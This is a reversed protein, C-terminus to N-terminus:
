LAPALQSMVEMGVEQKDKFLRVRGVGIVHWSDGRWVLATGEDVGALVVGAPAFALTRKAREASWQSFHPLVSFGKVLGLGFTFAGGRPDVMPDGLVMAGASSAALVGGERVVKLVADYLPSDKLVAKLHLPSGGAVYVFRSGEIATRNADLFAEERKLVMVPRVSAGLRRFHETAVEVARMPREFAAATPLIAVERVGSAELLAADLEHTSVWEAGGVLAITGSGIRTGAV